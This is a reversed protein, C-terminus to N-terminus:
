RWACQCDVGLEASCCGSRASHLVGRGGQRGTSCWANEPWREATLTGVFPEVSESSCGGVGAETGGRDTAHDRTPGDRTAAAAGPNWPVRLHHPHEGEKYGEQLSGDQHLSTEWAAEPLKAIAREDDETIKWGVTYRVTRRTTNLAELHELLGHTAGAGDVRILIKAASSGPIQALADTLMAIHDAVTNAGANGPRLLM